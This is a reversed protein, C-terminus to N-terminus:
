EQVAQLFSAPAPSALRLTEGEPLRLWLADAHLGLRGLPGAGDGYKEDGAIPCGLASLQVRIQNKRGTELEVSLLSWDRGRRLVRYRTVAERGQDGPYVRHDRTEQLKTRLLATEQPPGGRVLATYRRLLAVQNWQRQLAAHLAKDTTLVQIGSTDRDLRNLPQLDRGQPGMAQQLLTLVSRQSGQHPVALLGAPKDVALLRRDQHLVPLPLRPVVRDLLKVATGPALATDFATVTVGNVLVQGRQLAGKVRNRGWHPLQRRLFDLVGEERDATWQRGTM